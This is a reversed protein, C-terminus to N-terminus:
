TLKGALRELAEIILRNKVRCDFDGDLRAANESLRTRLEADEYLLAIKAVLDQPDGAKFLLGNEGDHLLRSIGAINSAVVPKGQALYEIIKVPYTQALDPVDHFPVICVSAEGILRTLESHEVFDLFRVTAIGRLPAVESEVHPPLSGIVTLTIDPLQKRLILMTEALTDLGMQPTYVSRMCLLKFGNEQPSCMTAKQSVDLWIANRLLLMRDRPIMFERMEFDPLISMIFLDAWRYLMQFVRRTLRCRLSVIRGPAITCRIPVDWVDVVWRCGGLLKGLFGLFGLISPETVIIDYRRARSSLFLLTAYAILGAKGRWPSRIVQTGSAASVSFDAGKRALITLEMSRSLFYVRQFHNLNRDNTTHSGSTIFLIKM